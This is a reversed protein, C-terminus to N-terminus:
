PRLASMDAAMMATEGMYTEGRGSIRLLPGSEQRCGLAWDLGIGANGTVRIVGRHIGHQHHSACVAVRNDQENGGGQSRFEVHHDHLNRRSSCGPVSCRWGDRAFIPDRHKPLASWYSRVHELLRLLGVWVPEGPRLRAFMAARLMAAVSAPARFRIEADLLAAGFAGANSDGSASRGRIQVFSHFDTELRAGLQPPAPVPLLGADCAMRSWMVEDALRRATVQRAREVWAEATAETLVPLLVLCRHWSLEGSRYASTIRSGTRRRMREIAILARVKRTSIGLANRCYAGLDDHGLRRHLRADAMRCLLMGLDADIEQMRAVIERMSRDLHEATKTEARARMRALHDRQARARPNCADPATSAVGEAPVRRRRPWGYVHQMWPVTFAEDPWGSESLGEAAICEVSQWAALECGAVRSSLRLTEWWLLRVSQPCRIAVNEAPEGDLDEDDPSGDSSADAWPALEATESSGRPDSTAAAKARCSV